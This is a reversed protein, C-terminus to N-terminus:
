LDDDTLGAARMIARQAGAALTQNGHVPVPIPRPAGPLNYIHHAGKIRRLMWGRRELAKCMEKGTILKM